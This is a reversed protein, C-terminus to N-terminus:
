FGIFPQMLRAVLGHLRTRGESAAICICEDDADIVPQHDVDPDAEAMDGAHFRGHPNSFSGALVQTLEIGTHGHSPLKTRPRGRLLMVNAKPVGPVKVRCGRLGPALFRWSGIECDELAKPMEIGEPFLWPKSKTVPKAVTATPSEIRALTQALADPAMLTLPMDELIGGGIAEFEGVRASCLPCRGIHIAVVIALGGDITGAAYQLLVEDSPHHQITM